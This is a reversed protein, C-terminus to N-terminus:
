IQVGSALQAMENAIANLEKPIYSISIETGWYSLLQTAALYYGAMTMHRCKYEENLQIIVLESDKFVEVETAGLKILIELGIVLAEYEAWNNTTEQYDLLFSYCHHSGRPDIFAIRAGVANQTCSGDFYLRWSTIWLSSIKKAEQQIWEEKGSLAKSPPIWLNAVELTGHINILEDGIEQHEALFNMITQGKVAKQPVYQFSFESLELIWKGIRGTLMPKSLMYKIVDTKAIIHMHCPLIYHRLKCATFYLALCLKKVPTYRTEVGTLTRSLYYIAQEKGGKNNPGVLKWNINGLCFYLAEVAKRESTAHASTSLGLLGEHQRFGRSVTSGM